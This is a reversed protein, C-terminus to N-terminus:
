HKETNRVKDKGRLEEFNTKEMVQGRLAIAELLREGSYFELSSLVVTEGDDGIVWLRSPVAKEVKGSLQDVLAKTDEVAIGGAPLRPPRGVVAVYLEAEHHLGRALLLERTEESGLGTRQTEVPANVLATVVKVVAEFQVAGLKGEKEPDARLEGTKRDRDALRLLLQLHTVAALAEEGELELGDLYVEVFALYGRITRASGWGVAETMRLLEPLFANFSGFDLERYLEQQKIAQVIRAARLKGSETNELLEFLAATATKLNPYKELM